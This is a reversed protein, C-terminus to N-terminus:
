IYDGDVDNYESAQSDEESSKSGNKEDEDKQRRLWAAMGESAHASAKRSSRARSTSADSPAASPRPPTKVSAYDQAYTPSALGNKFAATGNGVGSAVYGNSTGSTHAMANLDDSISVSIGRNPAHTPMGFDTFPDEAAERLQTSRASDREFNPSDFSDSPYETSRKLNSHNVIAIQLCKGTKIRIAPSGTALM